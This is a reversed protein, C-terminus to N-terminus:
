NLVMERLSYLIQLHRFVFFASCCRVCSLSTRKTPSRSMSWFKRHRLPTEISVSDSAKQSCPLTQEIYFKYYALKDPDALSGHGATNLKWHLGRRHRKTHSSAVSRSSRGTRALKCTIWEDGRCNTKVTIWFPSCFWCHFLKAWKVIFNTRLKLCSVKKMESTPDSAWHLTMGAELRKLAQWSWWVDDHFQTKVSEQLFKLAKGVLFSKQKLLNESNCFLRALM